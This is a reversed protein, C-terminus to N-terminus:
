MSLDLNYVMYSSHLVVSSLQESIDNGGGDSVGIMSTTTRIGLREGYKIALRIAGPTSYTPGVYLGQHNLQRNADSSRDTTDEKFMVVSFIPLLIIDKMSPPSGFFLEYRTKDYNTPSPKNNIVALSWYFLEGLLRQIQQRSVGLQSFQPHQLIYTVAM